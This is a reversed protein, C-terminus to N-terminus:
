PACPHYPVTQAATIQIETTEKRCSPPHSTLASAFITNTVRVHPGGSLYSRALEGELEWEDM